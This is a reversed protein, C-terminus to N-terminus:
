DVDEGTSSKWLEFWQSASFNINLASVALKIRDINKSGVVPIIKSPHSLIWAYIVEEMTSTGLEEKLKSLAKRIRNTKKDEGTFIRGGSLPSWSMPSIRYELCQDITGIDFHELYVPSIEIQNTVLPFDLYSSLMSFQYPKFNSVGFNLVKGDTKLSNFAAAIEEPNMFPSPRHILLVDIYDTQLCKLSNEVSKIIHQKSTDYHKIKTEPRNDSVLKIGCKTVLQLKERLSSKISLVEGFLSECNYNGYIDAHDFTTIGIDLCAQILKLIEKKTMKWDCMRWHGHAIRSLECNDSIKIKEM